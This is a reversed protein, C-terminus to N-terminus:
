GVEIPTVIPCFFSSTASMGSHICNLFLGMSMWAQFFIIDVLLTLVFLILLNCAIRQWAKMHLKASLEDGGWVSLVLVIAAVLGIPSFVKVIDFGIPVFLGVGFALYRIPVATNVLVLVGYLITIGIWWTWLHLWSKENAPGPVDM